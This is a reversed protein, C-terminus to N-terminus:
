KNIDIGSIFRLGVEKMGNVTITPPRNFERAFIPTIKTGITGLAYKGQDKSNPVSKKTPAFLLDTAGTTTETLSEVYGEAFSAVGLKAYREIIHRDVDDALRSSGTELDIAHIVVGYEKNNLTMTTFEAIVSEGIVKPLGILLGGNLPGSSEIRATIYTLEDTNISDFLIGYLDEGASVHHMSAKHAEGKRQPYDAVLDQNITKKTKSTLNVSPITFRTNTSSKSSTDLAGSTATSGKYSKKSQTKAIKSSSALKVLLRDMSASEAKTKDLQESLFTALRTNIEQQAESYTENKKKTLTVNANSMRETHRRHLIADISEDVDNKTEEQSVGIRKENEVRLAQIFSGGSNKAKEIKKDEEKEIVEMMPSDKPVISIDTPLPESINRSVSGSLISVEVTGAVEPRSTVKKSYMKYMYTGSLVSIVLVSFIMIRARPPVSKRFNKIFSKM